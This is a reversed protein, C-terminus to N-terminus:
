RAYIKCTKKRAIQITKEFYFKAISHLNEYILLYMINLNLMM